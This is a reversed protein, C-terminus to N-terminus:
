ENVRIVGLLYTVAFLAPWFSLRMMSWGRERVLLGLAFLQMVAFIPFKVEPPLRVWPNYIIGLSGFFVLSPVMIWKSDEAQGGAIQVAPKAPPTNGVSMTRNM